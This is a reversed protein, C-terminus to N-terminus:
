QRALVEEEEATLKYNSQKTKLPKAYVRSDERGYISSIVAGDGNEDTIAMSFSLDNGVEGFANYRNISPTAVKKRIRQDHNQLINYIDEIKKSLSVLDQHNQLLTQEINVGEEGKILALYRKRLNRSTSSAVIAIILSIIAILLIALVTIDLTTPSIKQVISTLM